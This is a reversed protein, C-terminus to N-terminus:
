RTNGHARGETAHQRMREALPRDQVVPGTSVLAGLAAALLAGARERAAPLRVRDHMWRLKREATGADALGERVWRAAPNVDLFSLSDAAQLLDADRWGGDEHARVLTEVEGALAPDAGRERLWAGVLEACRDQHWRNYAPSDWDRASDWTAAPDPFAREIDHTVAAIRLAESAEPDLEVVWDLTRALHRPHPHVDEVWARAQDLLTM